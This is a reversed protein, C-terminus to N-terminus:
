IQVLWCSGKAPAQVTMCWSKLGFGYLNLMTFFIQVVKAGPIFAESM